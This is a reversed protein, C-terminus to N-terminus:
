QVQSLETNAEWSCSSIRPAFMKVKDWELTKNEEVKVAKWEINKHEEMVLYQIGKYLQKIRLFRRQFHCILDKAGHAVNDSLPSDLIKLLMHDGNLYKLNEM